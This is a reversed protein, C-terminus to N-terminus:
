VLAVHRFTASGTYSGFTAARRESRLRVHYVVICIQSCCSLKLVFRIFEVLPVGRSKTPEKGEFGLGFLIDQNGSKDSMVLNGAFSCEVTQM